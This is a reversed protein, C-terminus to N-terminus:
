TNVEGRTPEIHPGYKHPGDHNLTLVCSRSEGHGGPFLSGCVTKRSVLTQAAGPHGRGKGRKITSGM